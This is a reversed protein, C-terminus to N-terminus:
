TSFIPLCSYIPSKSQPQHDTAATAAMEEEKERKRRRNRKSERKKKRKKNGMYNRLNSLYPM